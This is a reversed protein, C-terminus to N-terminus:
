FCNSDYYVPKGFPPRKSLLICTHKRWTKKMVQKIESYYKMSHINQLKDMKRNFSMNAGELNQCNRFCGRYVNIHM